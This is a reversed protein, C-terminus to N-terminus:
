PAHPHPQAFFDACVSKVDAFNHHGLVSMRYMSDQASASPGVQHALVASFTWAGSPVHLVHVWFGLM